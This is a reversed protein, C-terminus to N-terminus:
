VIEHNVPVPVPVARRGVRAYLFLVPSLILASTLLAARVSLNGIIGVIPGGAIQGFADVQGSMSIVTARVNSDLHQNIWTMQIPGILTRVTKFSLLLLVAVVFNGALAFGVLSVVLAGSLWFSARAITGSNTTNVRKIAIQTAGISLLSSVAELAGIWVVPQLGGFSPLVFDHLLHPTWLRDFGESYLGFFLGIGLITLLIPRARTLRVGDRLTNKMEQWSEREAPPTPTFGNEPMFLMLFVALGIFSIGGLIIPLQIHISALLVSLGIGVLGVIGGIQSARMFVRGVKDEGIEDTIWAETAGSTFTHGIGWLVQALLIAAFHPITGEVIFGVGIMVFGIIISLRRSYVDAVIGTPVEFLFVSIELTTGVLVLQLPSLGVTNVQYVMNITFVLTFFLALAGNFILYVRYADMKRVNLFM